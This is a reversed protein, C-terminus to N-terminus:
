RGAERDLERAVDRATERAAADAANHRRIWAAMAEYRALTAEAIERAEATLGDLIRAAEAAHAVIPAEAEAAEAAYRAAYWAAGEDDPRAAAAKAATDANRRCAAAKRIVHDAPAAWAIRLAATEAAETAEPASM